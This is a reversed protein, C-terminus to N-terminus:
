ALPKRRALIRRRSIRWGAAEHTLADEYVVSACTGDANVGIGKSRARARDGQVAEIVINTVHHGVPNADGIERGLAALAELGEVTGFGFDTLDFVADPAFVEDFRELEGSDAIHGHMAIVQTIALHDAITM